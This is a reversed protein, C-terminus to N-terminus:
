SSLLFLEVRSWQGYERLRHLVVRLHQDVTPIVLFEETSHLREVPVSVLVPHEERHLSLM